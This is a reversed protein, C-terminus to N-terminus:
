KFAVMKQEMYEEKELDTTFFKLKRADAMKLYELNIHQFLLVMFVASLFQKKFVLAISNKRFTYQFNFCAGKIDPTFGATLM